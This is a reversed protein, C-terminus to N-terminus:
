GGPIISKSEIAQLLSAEKMLLAIQQEIYKRWKEAAIEIPMTQPFYIGFPILIIDNDNKIERESNGVTIKWEDNDMIKGDNDIPPLINLYKYKM